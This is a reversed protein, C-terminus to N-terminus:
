AYASAAAAALASCRVVAIVSARITAAAPTRTSAPRPQTTVRDTTRGSFRTPATRVASASPSRRPEAPTSLLSSTPRIAAASSAEIAFMRDTIVAIPSLEVVRAEAVSSSEALAWFMARSASSDEACLPITAVAAPWTEVLTCVTDAPDSCIPEEIRSIACFAASTARTAACATSTASVVVAVTALSPSDDSCIALTTLTIVLMASCVLRSASLAVMSAARAPSAPLPKATTALSTLSSAWSVAFAVSSM